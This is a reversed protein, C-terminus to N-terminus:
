AFPDDEEEDEEEIKVPRESKKKPRADEDIEDGDLSGDEGSRKKSPSPGFPNDSDEDEMEDVDEDSEDDAEGDVSKVWYLKPGRAGHRVEMNQESSLRHRVIPIPKAAALDSLTQPKREALCQVLGSDSILYLRDTEINFLIKGFKRADFSSLINGTERDLITLYNRRDITYIREKSASIFRQIDPSFWKEEGTPLDIAHMGGGETPCYVDTGVVAIREIVAGKTSFGWAVEGTRDKVAFVYSGKTGVVVMSPIEAAGLKNSTYQYPVCQNSTPRVIISKNSTWDQRVIENDDLFFTQSSSDVKYQLHIYQDSLNSINAALLYGKDTVWTLTESHNRVHKNETFVIVQSSVLPKVFLNGFSQVVMPISQAPRLKIQEEPPALPAEYYIKNKAKEFRKVIDALVPDDAYQSAASSVEPQSGNAKQALRNKGFKELAEDEMMTDRDILPYAMIRGNVMPVYVYNESIECATSAASSFDTLLVMKGNRRDFVFLEAANLVAVMRSNAAPEQYNSNANGLNRVWLTKGNVADFASLFGDASVIFLTNGELIAQSVKSRKPDLTAQNFWTRTLGHQELQMPGILTTQRAPSEKAEIPQSVLFVSVFIASFVALFLLLSDSPKDNIYFFMKLATKTTM